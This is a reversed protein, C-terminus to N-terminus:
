GTFSFRNIIPMRRESGFANSRMKPGPASQQRKHEAINVMVVVRDVVSPVQEEGLRGVAAKLDKDKSNLINHIITQNDNQLEVRDMIIADLLAYEPLSDSDKQDPRLEASPPRDIISQVVEKLEPSTDELNIRWQTLQFAETKLIDKILSFGGAMDGYITSYGVSLESKNGTAIVMSGFKNSVAMLLNGRIRAQLNEETVGPKNDAGFAPALLEEYDLRLKEIPVMKYDIGLAIAMREADGQTEDSSYATPMILSSVNKIGLADAAILAVLGSDLGGSLGFIVKQFGNKRIYDALAIQLANYVELERWPTDEEKYADEKDARNHIDLFPVTEILTEEESDVIFCDGDFVLQDTAGFLNTYILPAGAKLSFNLAIERRQATKNYQYPSASINIIMDTRSGSIMKALRLSVKTEWIDECVTLAISKNKWHLIGLDSGATFFRKENFVGYNPLAHKNYSMLIRGNGVAVACNFRVEESDNILIPINENTKEAIYSEELGIRRPVGVVAAIDSNTHRAIESLAKNAKDIFPGHLLLDEPPYGTLALEPFVILEIKDEKAKELLDIIIQKNGEIDGITANISQSRVSLGKVVSDCHGPVPNLYDPKM